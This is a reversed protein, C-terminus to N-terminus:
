SHLPTPATATAAPPAAMDASSTTALYQPAQWVAPTSPAGFIPSAAQFTRALALPPTSPRSFDAIAPMLAMGGFPVQAVQESSSSFPAILFIDPLIFWDCVIFLNYCVLALTALAAYRRRRSPFVFLRYIRELEAPFRFSRGGARLSRQLLPELKELESLNDAPTAHM